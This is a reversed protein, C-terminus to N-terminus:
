IQIQQQKLTNKYEKNKMWIIKAYDKMIKSFLMKILDEESCLMKFLKTEAFTEVIDFDYPAVLIYFFFSFSFFKM